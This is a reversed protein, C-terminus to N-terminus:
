ARLGKLPKSRASYFRTTTWSRLAEVSALASAPALVKEETLIFVTEGDESFYTFIQYTFEM